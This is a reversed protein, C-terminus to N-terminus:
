KKKQIPTYGTKEILEQGQESLIWEIYLEINENKNEDDIYIAYFNDSFPYTGDQITERTPHIGNISLLKIQNNRAMETSFFLFSYGIADPFNRYVAVQNIIGGMDEPVDETRPEMILYGSMIKELMTQSGSNKPRQFARIKQRSGNLEKWNKIKGSYIRQIDKITVNDVINKKNVFFVFAERGIPVLRLNLGKEIFQEKQADSPGACFIIDAKGQLLNEYASPTKSCLVLRNIERHDNKPYVAQVFSAYVRYLATAGDLVPLNDYLTLRLNTKEDLKALMSTEAFPRYAYEYNEESITPIENVYIAHWIVATVTLICIAPVALIFYVKKTKIINWLVLFAILSVYFALVLPGHISNQAPYILVLLIFAIFSLVGTVLGILVSIAARTNKLKMWILLVLTITICIFIIIAM